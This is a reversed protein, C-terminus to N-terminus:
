FYATGTTGNAGAVFCYGPGGAVPQKAYVNFSGGSQLPAPVVWERSPGACTNKAGIYDNGFCSNDAWTGAKGAAFGPQRIQVTTTVAAAPLSNTLLTAAFLAAVSKSTLM